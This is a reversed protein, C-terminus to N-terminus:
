EKRNLANVYRGAITDWGFHEKQAQRSREALSARFGPDSLVRLLADGLEAKKERSVLMVGADTIPPATEPGDYAIVPLGCAIGAIASGRRSSIPARVFLAVDASRFARVVQEAPLVGEVCVEVPVDKLEERLGAERESAGRGFAHIQLRGIRPAAFRLADVIRECEDRGAEGGTIGFVAICPTDGGRGVPQTAAVADVPLNAGVPIFVANSPRHGLWSIVDLPLTFVAIDAVNLARRMVRLQARRRIADVLRGGTYAEVDHYVVGVRAGADRLEKVVRRFRLPFGRASWALATYQLLVWQGRWDRARQRLEGLAAAWGREAWGVRALEMEFGRDHLAGGLYRCYEEVADTPEDRRGLLAIIHRENM